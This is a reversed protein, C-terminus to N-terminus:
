LIQNEQPQTIKVHGNKETSELVPISFSVSYGHETARVSLSASPGYYSILRLDTNTMGVGGASGDMVKKAHIGLGDDRVEFFVAGSRFLM